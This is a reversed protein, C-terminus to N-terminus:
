TTKHVNLNVQVTLINVCDSLQTVISAINHPTQHYYVTNKVTAYCGHKMQLGIKDKTNM